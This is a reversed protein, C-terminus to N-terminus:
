ICLSGIWDWSIDCEFAYLVFGIGPFTVNLHM